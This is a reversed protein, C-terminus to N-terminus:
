GTAMVAKLRILGRQVRLDRTHFHDAYVPQLLVLTWPAPLVIDLDRLAARVPGTIEAPDQDRCWIDLSLKHEILRVGDADRASSEARGWSAYPYVAHRSRPRGIRVPDGLVAQVQPSAALAATLASKLRAEPASM